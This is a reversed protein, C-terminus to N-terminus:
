ADGANHLEPWGTQEDWGQYTTLLPPLADAGLEFDIAPFPCPGLVEGPRGTRHATGCNSTLPGEPGGAGARGLAGARGNQGRSGGKASRVATGFPQAQQDGVFLWVSSADGGNSGKGPQGPRGSDGGAGGWGPGSRCGVSSPTGPNGDAGNGGPAGDGGKGGRFGNFTLSLDLRTAQIENLMVKGFFLFIQPVAITRADTGPDGPRGNGGAAGNPDGTNKRADTGRNKGPLGDVRPLGGVVPDDTTAIAARGHLSLVDAYIALWPVALNTLSLTGGDEIYLPKTKLVNSSYETFGRVDFRWIKARQSLLAKVVNLDPDAPLKSLVGGDRM